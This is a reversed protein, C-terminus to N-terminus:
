KRWSYRVADLSEVRSSTIPCITEDALPGSVKVRLEGKERGNRRGEWANGLGHIPPGQFSRTPDSVSRACGKRHSPHGFVPLGVFGVLFPLDSPLHSWSVSDRSGSQTGSDCLKCTPWFAKAM